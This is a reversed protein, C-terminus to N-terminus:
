QIEELESQTFSFGALKFDDILSVIQKMKDYNPKFFIRGGVIMHTWDSLGDRKSQDVASIINKAKQLENPSVWGHNGYGEGVIEENRYFTIKFPSSM